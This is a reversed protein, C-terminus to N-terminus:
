PSNARAPPGLIDDTMAQNYYDYAEWVVGLRMWLTNEDRPRRHVHNVIGRLNLDLKLAM